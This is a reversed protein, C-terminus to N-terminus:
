GADVVGGRYPGKEVAFELAAKFAAAMRAEGSGEESVGHLRALLSLAKYPDRVSVQRLNGKADFKVDRVMATAGRPWEAPSRMTGDGNLFLGIDSLALLELRAVVGDRNLIGGGGEIERQIDVLDAQTRPLDGDTVLSFDDAM